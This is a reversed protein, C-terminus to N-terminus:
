RAPVYVGHDVDGLVVTEFRRLGRADRVLMCVCTDRAMDGWDGKVRERVQESFQVRKGPQKCGSVGRMLGACVVETHARANNADMSVVDFILDAFAPFLQVDYMGGNGDVVVNASIKGNDRPSTYMCSVRLSRAHIRSMTFDVHPEGHRPEEDHNDRREQGQSTSAGPERVNSESESDSDKTKSETDPHQGAARPIEEGAAPASAESGEESQDQGDNKAPIQGATEHPFIVNVSDISIQIRAASESKSEDSFTCLTAWTHSSILTYKELPLNLSSDLVAREEHTLSCLFRMVANHEPSRYTHMCTNVHDYKCICTHTHTYTDLVALEGHTLSCLFRMATNCVCMCKVMQLFCMCVCICAHIYTHM